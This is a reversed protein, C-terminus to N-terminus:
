QNEGEENSKEQNSETRAMYGLLLQAQEAENLRRGPLKGAVENAIKGMEGCSWRALGTGAKGRAWAQYVRIRQLMRALGKNPDAIATPILANGLLQPPLDQRVTKSYEAHLTDALSLFRGVLFASEQMYNEKRHGLKNLTIGLLSAAIVPNRGAERSIGKWAEKGGRHAAAAVAILLDATRRLATRLLTEASERARERGAILVDFVEALRCGPADSYSAAGREWLMQLCRMVEAPSPVTEDDKLPLPPRNRAGRLWEAAGEIAQGATFSESLEVQVRGPDIKNLVFLHLLPSDDAARGRLADCVSACLNVYLRESQDPGSFMEAIDAEM